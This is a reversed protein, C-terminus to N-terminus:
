AEDAADKYEILDLLKWQGYKDMEATYISMQSNDMDPKFSFFIPYVEEWTDYWDYYPYYENYIDNWVWKELAYGTRISSM